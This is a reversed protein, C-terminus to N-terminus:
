ESPKETKNIVSTLTTFISDIGKGSCHVYGATVIAKTEDMFERESMTNLCKVYLERYTIRQFAKIYSLVESAYGAHTHGGMSQFVKQMDDELATVFDNASILDQEEIILEDRQSAALIMAVKHLHTQKRAIYGSFRDSALHLPRPGWLKEYWVAGWARADKTLSYEGKIMGITQLDEVLKKGEEDYYEDAILQSPYPVLHRKKDGYVFVIRSTLGGGVLSEPFNSQLWNPTTCGIINIWPNVIDTKGQTKTHHGWVELQGDWLSVMTDILAGDDPKLFTGLESIACTICSMPLYSGSIADGFPVEVFADALAQTLAQWTMSQPGFKVGDVQSLLHMGIRVSTSKAAVGPPGVLIIYFNPTWQFYREDIWVQRRLAGAITSVGVWFHFLAPSESYKTFDAYARLWNKYNRKPM